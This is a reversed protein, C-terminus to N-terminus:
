LMAHFPVFIEHDKMLENIYNNNEDFIEMSCALFMMMNGHTSSTYCYAEFRFVGISGDIYNCRNFTLGYENMTYQVPTRFSTDVVATELIEIDDNGSLQPCHGLPWLKDLSAGGMNAKLHAFGSMGQRGVTEHWEIQKAANVIAGGVSLPMGLGDAVAVAAAHNEPAIVIGMTLHFFVKSALFTRTLFIYHPRSL